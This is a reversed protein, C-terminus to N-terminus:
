AKRNNKYRIRETDHLKIVEEIPLKIKVNEENRRVLMAVKTNAKFGVNGLKTVSYPDVFISARYNDSIESPVLFEVKKFHRNNKQRIDTVHTTGNLYVIDSM